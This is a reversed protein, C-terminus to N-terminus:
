WRRRVAAPSAGTAGHARRGTPAGAAAATISHGATSARGAAPDGLAKTMFVSNPDDVYEGFPGCHEFGFRRYLARAPEFAPMAGTELNLRDYGRRRAEGIIHELIRSGVGRGRHAEGTRMSKVEGTTPDLERLAGCGLLVDGDWASWFTVEPSRLAELDFAHISEAPTIEHM